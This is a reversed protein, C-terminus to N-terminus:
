RFPAVLGVEQIARFGRPRGRSWIAGGRCGRISHASFGSADRGLGFFAALANNQLLVMM